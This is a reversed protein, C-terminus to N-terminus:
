VEQQMGEPKPLNEWIGESGYCFGDLWRCRDSVNHAIRTTSDKLQQRRSCLLTNSIMGQKHHKVVLKM